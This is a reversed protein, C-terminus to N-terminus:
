HQTALMNSFRGSSTGGDGFDEFPSLTAEGHEPRLIYYFGMKVTAGDSAEIVVVERRDPHQSPPGDKMLEETTTAKHDGKVIWAELMSVYRIISAEKFLLRLGDAVADKDDLPALIPLTQGNKDICVWMPVIEGQEQFIYKAFTKGHEFLEDLNM